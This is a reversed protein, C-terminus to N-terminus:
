QRPNGHFLEWSFRGYFAAFAGFAVTAGVIPWLGVKDGYEPLVLLGVVSGVAAFGFGVAVIATVTGALIDGATPGAGARRQRYEAILPQPEDPAM